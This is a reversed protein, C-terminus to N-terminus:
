MYLNLRTEMGGVQTQSPPGNQAIKHVNEGLNPMENLRKVTYPSYLLKLSFYLYIIFAM